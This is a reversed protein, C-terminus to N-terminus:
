SHEKYTEISSRRKMSRGFLISVAALFLLSASYPRMFFIMPSGDSLTLSQGLAQELVPGLLFALVFPVLPWGRKRLLYAFFGSVLAVFVDFMSNRASYAGVVCFALIGPALYNFPVLCLRAWIGVLPLNLLLLIVNAVFMSAIVTWTFAAHQAFLGPGPQLGHITLAALLVALSGTTPIGFAMLPIFGAMSTANNAAEPGAIGEIAGKGFRHPAKAIRKEIDYSIFSTVAPIMGPLLGLVFGVVTGRFGAWLGSVLLRGRPLMTWWSGLGIRGMIGRSEAQLMVESVGFIGILLSILELGRLLEISGLTFRPTGTSADIGVSAAVVGFLAMVIGKVLAGDSLSILTTLSFVVLCFYEPPGFLLSLRAVPEGLLAVAAAGFMGAMFSVIAAIALAQVPQGQKTMEYGEIAAPISSPEGPIRLLIATTSGGYSAGYYISALVIITATPPMHMALPLLLAMAASPGLGPLVGVATGLISGAIAFLLNTVSLANALSDLFGIGM